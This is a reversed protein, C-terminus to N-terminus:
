HWINSYNNATMFLHNFIVYLWTTETVIHLHRTVILKGYMLRGYYRTKSKTGLKRLRTFRVPYRGIAASRQRVVVLRYWHAMVRFVSSNRYSVATHLTNSRRYSSTNEQTTEQNTRHIFSATKNLRLPHWLQWILDSPLADKQRLSVPAIIIRPIMVVFWERTKRASFPSM